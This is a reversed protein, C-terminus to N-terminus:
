EMKFQLINNQKESVHGKRILVLCISLDIFYYIACLLIICRGIYIPVRNIVQFTLRHIFIFEAITYIGWGMTSELCIIGKYNFPKNKYDWWVFGFIKIMICAVFLELCTSCIAGFVFLLVPKTAFTKLMTHVLIGGFGYIPCIPGHIFGRNTIKHNSLSMYISEALWGLVSYILFWFCFSYISENLYPLIFNWM